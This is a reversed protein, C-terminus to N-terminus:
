LNGFLRSVTDDYQDGTPTVGGEAGDRTPVPLAPTQAAAAGSFTSATGPRRDRHTGRHGDGRNGGGGAGGRSGGLQAGGAGSESSGGGPAQAVQGPGRPVGVGFLPKQDEPQLLTLYVVLLLAGVIVAQAAVVRIGRGNM